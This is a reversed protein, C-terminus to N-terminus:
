ATSEMSPVQLAERMDPQARILGAMQLSQADGQAQLAAIVGLRDEVTKDQNLKMKGTLTAIPIELTAIVRLRSGTHSMPIKEFDWSGGLPTDYHAVTRRLVEMVKDEDESVRPKGRAHILTYNWTPFTMQHRYWSPSVFAHPGQFIVLVEGAALLDAYLPDHRPLHTVLTGFPAAESTASDLLFPLMSSQIGGAGQTVLTAFSWARMGAHLAATDTEAYAPQVFM